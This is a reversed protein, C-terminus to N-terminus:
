YLGLSNNQSLISGNRASWNNMWCINSVRSQALFHELYKLYSMMSCFPPSGREQFNSIKDPSLSLLCNIHYIMIKNKLKICYSNNLFLFLLVPYFPIPLPPCKFYFLFTINFCFGPSYTCPPPTKWGPCFEPSTWPLALLRTYSTNAYPCRHSCPKDSRQDNPSEPKEQTAHCCKLVSCFLSM